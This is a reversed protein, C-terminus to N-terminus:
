SFGAPNATVSCVARRLLRQPRLRGGGGQNRQDVVFMCRDKALQTVLTDWERAHGMSGHPMVVPPADADGVMRYHFRLGKVEVYRGQAPGLRSM